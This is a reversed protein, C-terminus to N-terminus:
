RAARRLDAAVPHEFRSADSLVSLAVRDPWLAAARALLDYTTGPLGREALPVGEIAALDDPGDFAPWLLDSM